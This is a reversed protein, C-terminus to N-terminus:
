FRVTSTVSVEHGNDDTGFYTVELASLRVGADSCPAHRGRLTGNPAIRDSGFQEVMWGLTTEFNVRRGDPLVGVLGAGRTIKVGVGGVERLTAAVEWM